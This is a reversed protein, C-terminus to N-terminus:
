LGAAVQAGRAIARKADLEAAEEAGGIVHVLVGAARLPAVLETRSVQGACIVVTDVALVRSEGAVRVHLGADDVREYTVESLVEVGRKKLAARHIWGTTKGLRSGGKASSRQCMVIERDPKPTVSAILGGRRPENEGGASGWGADVGWEALFVALETADHPAPVHALFEAVDHGIGGTGIIAVRAGVPAGRLVEAYSRVKPHDHGPISIRRPTVGTAVVVADFLGILDAATVRRGLEVKVGTADIRRQFYRLTEDFEAKGPIRRALDFQGGLHADAEFLTVTHGREAAVTAASLGAPGAGVVAVRLAKSVKHYVLETEFAARPNVLCTARKNQFVHDLCAQNCAICTNIDAARNEMAKRVFEPDALFPRALSVMDAAGSALVHEAVEPTNIRNSAVIPITVVGAERLRRTVWTFAGRPVSTAITPVRAEHWGIGTNLISAGAAEVRKALDLVELWSSGDAVLDIMSLRYIIVFDPGLAQRIGDVIELPFRIRDAYEGGWQDTRRNTARVIFQNILYGESGMVEVGDYGADRALRACQIFDNITSRVGGATLGWPSFPSIPSKLRTPAVNWPHYAYRGAHLIQMCIRGGEAHVADTVHKHRRAERSSNLTAAFPKVQGARNPAVGGTVILGVGGRAREAFYASLKPFDGGEEELGVHMSGMLVRNPLTLHAVVLPALLHPYPGAPVPPAPM